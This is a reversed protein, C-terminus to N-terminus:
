MNPGSRSSRRRGARGRRSRPRRGSTSRGRAGSSSSSRRRRSHRPVSGRAGPDLREWHLRRPRVAGEHRAATTAGGWRELEVEDINLINPPRDAPAGYQLPRAEAEREWPDDTRGRGVALRVPGGGLAAALRLGDSAEHRLRPVRAWGPRRHLTSSSTPATSSATAPACRTCRTTRGRSGRARSCTTSRRPPATCPPPPTPLKGPAVRVKNLGVGKTGAADGLRQWTADM